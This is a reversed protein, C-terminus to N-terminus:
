DEFYSGEEHSIIITSGASNKIIKGNLKASKKPGIWDETVSTPVEAHCHRSQRPSLPL